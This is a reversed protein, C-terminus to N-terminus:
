EQDVFLAGKANKIRNNLHVPPPINDGFPIKARYRVWDLVHQPSNIQKWADYQLWGM